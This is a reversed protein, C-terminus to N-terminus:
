HTVWPWRSQMACVTSQCNPLSCFQISLSLPTCPRTQSCLHLSRDNCYESSRSDPHMASCASARLRDFASPFPCLCAQRVQERLSHCNSTTPARHVSSEKARWCQHWTATSCCCRQQKTQNRARPRSCRPLHLRQRWASPRAGKYAYMSDALVAEPESNPHPITRQHM